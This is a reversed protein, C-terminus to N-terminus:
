FGTDMKIVGRQRKVAIVRQKLNEYLTRPRAVSQLLLKPNSRDDADVEITGVGFIRDVLSQHMRIDNVHWLELTDINTSLLGFEYDIRYNTVRYRHRKVWLSPVFMLLLGAPILLWAFWPAGNTATHNWLFPLAAVLLGVAFWLLVLGLEGRLLPSGEYFVIEEDDAARHNADPGDILDTAHPQVAPDRAAANLDDHAERTM